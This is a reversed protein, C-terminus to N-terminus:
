HNLADSRLKYKKFLEIGQFLFVLITSITVLGITIPLMGVFMIAIDKRLWYLPVGILSFVASVLLYLPWDRSTLVKTKEPFRSLVLGAVDFEFAPKPQEQIAAFLSRYNAIRTKCTECCRIHEITDAECGPADLVYQQIADESLHGTKM